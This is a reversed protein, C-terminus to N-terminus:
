NEVVYTDPIKFVAPLAYDDAFVKIVSGPRIIWAGMDRSLVDAFKDPAIHESARVSATRYEGSDTDISVVKVNYLHHNSENQIQVGLGDRANGSQLIGLRVPPPYVGTKFFPEALAPLMLLVLAIVIFRSM